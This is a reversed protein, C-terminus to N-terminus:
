LFQAQFPFRVSERIPITKNLSLDANYWHPGYIFPRYGWVGATSAPTLLTPSVAGSSIITVTNPNVTEVWPNASRFVGVASQVQAPTIGNFVVGADNQNVTLFGGKM